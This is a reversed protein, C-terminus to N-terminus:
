LFFYPDLVEPTKAMCFKAGNTFGIGPWSLTPCRPLRHGEPSLHHLLLGQSMRLLPGGLPLLLKIYNKLILFSSKSLPSCEGTSLLINTKIINLYEQIRNIFVCSPFFNFLFSFLSLIEIHWRGLLCLILLFAHTMDVSSDVQVTNQLVLSM